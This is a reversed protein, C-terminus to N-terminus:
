PTTSIVKIGYYDGVCKNLWFRTADGLTNLKAWNNAKQDATSIVATAYGKERLDIMQANFQAWARAYAAYTPQMATMQSLSLAAAIWLILIAVNSVRVLSKWHQALPGSICAGLPMLTLVVIYTPILLTRDPPVTSEGYAAPPFSSFSLVLGALLVAGASRWGRLSLDFHLGLWVGVSLTAVLAVSKLPSDTIAVLFLGYSSFAIGLLIPLPPPPPFFAARAPNGPSAVIVLVSLMAGALGFLLFFWDNKAATHNRFLLRGAIGLGFIVVQLAAFTESFGGAGFALLFSASTWFITESPSWQRARCYLYLAVDFTILILPPVVSRMGQGWYLSQPVNPALALTLFLVSAAVSFGTLFRSGTGRIRSLMLVAAFLAAIWIVLVLTTVLPTVRPGLAGFTADLVNASYRGTWTIYWFWAARLIGLRLSEAASCYDDAMFRSFSGLYAHMVLVVTSGGAVLAAGWKAEAAGPSDQAASEPVGQEITNPHMM